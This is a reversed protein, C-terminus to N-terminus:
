GEPSGDIGNLSAGRTKWVSESRKKGRPQYFHSGSEFDDPLAANRSYFHGMGNAERSRDQAYARNSRDFPSFHTRSHLIQGALKLLINESRRGGEGEFLHRYIDHKTFAHRM